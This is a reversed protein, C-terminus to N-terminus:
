CTRRRRSHGIGVNFDIIAKSYNNEFRTKYKSYTIHTSPVIKLYPMRLLGFGVNPFIFRQEVPFTNESNLKSFIKVSITNNADSKLIDRPLAIKIPYNGGNHKHISLGNISIEANYNIGLFGLVIQTENVQYSSFFIKKEIIYKVRSTKLSNFFSLHGSRM